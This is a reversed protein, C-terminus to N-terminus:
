RDMVAMVFRAPEEGTASYSHPRDGAFVAADGAALVRDEGDVTVRLAGEEVSVIERTGPTHPESERLEGPRIEWRWLEVSPRPDSGALLTGIGGNPGRWLVPQKDPTFVRLVPEDELQVLRTLPIGLADSVRILTGLNPNARGQELGVLVGKSVGSRAALKDLSWGHSSRLSRVTRAVAAGVPDSHPRESTDDM